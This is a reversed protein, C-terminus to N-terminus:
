RDALLEPYLELKGRYQRRREIQTARLSTIESEELADWWEVSGYIVEQKKIDALRRKQRLALLEADDTIKETM